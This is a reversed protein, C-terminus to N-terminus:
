QMLLILAVTRNLSAPLSSPNLVTTPLNSPNIQSLQQELEGGVPFFLSSLVRFSILFNFKHELMYIWTHGEEKILYIVKWVAETLFCVVSKYLSAVWVSLSQTFSQTQVHCSYPAPFFHSFYADVPFWGHIFLHWCVVVCSWLLPRGSAQSLSGTHSVQSCPNQSSTPRSERGQHPSLVLSCSSQNWSSGVARTWTRGQRAQSREQGCQHWFAGESRSTPHQVTGRSERKWGAAPWAVM